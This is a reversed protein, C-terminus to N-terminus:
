ERLMRRTEIMKQERERSEQKLSEIIDNWPKSGTAKGPQSKPNVYMEIITIGEPTLKSSYAINGESLEDTEFYNSDSSVIVKPCGDEEVAQYAKGESNEAHEQLIYPELVSYEEGNFTEPHLVEPIRVGRDKTIESDEAASM